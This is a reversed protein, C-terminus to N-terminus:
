FIKKTKHNFISKIKSKFEERQINTIKGQKYFSDLVNLIESQCTIKQSLITFYQGMM